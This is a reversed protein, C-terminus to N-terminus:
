RALRHIASRSMSQTHHNEGYLPLKWAPVGHIPSLLQGGQVTPAM